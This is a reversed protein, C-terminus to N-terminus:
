RVRKKFSEPNVITNYRQNAFQDINNIKNKGIYHSENNDPHSTATIHLFKYIKQKTNEIILQINNHKTYKTVLDQQKLGNCIITKKPTFKDIVKDYKVNVLIQFKGGDKMGM